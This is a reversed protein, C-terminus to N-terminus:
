KKDNFNMILKAVIKAKEQFVFHTGDLVHLESWQIHQQIIRWENLPTEDDDKWWILQTPLDIQRMYKRLDNWIANRFIKTMKGADKYDRSSARNKVSNYYTNLWPLSFLIKWIKVIIIKHLPIKSVIGASAILTLRRLHRKRSGMYTAIRGGFSHGILHVNTLWLKTLFIDLIYGYDEITMHNHILESGWFGPLSISMYSIKHDDLIEMIEKFSMADQGWGHLFVCCKNSHFHKGHVYKILVWNIIAQKKKM